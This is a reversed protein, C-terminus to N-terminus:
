SLIQFYASDWFSMEDELWWNEPAIKTESLAIEGIESIVVPNAEKWTFIILQHNWECKPQKKESTQNLIICHKRLM